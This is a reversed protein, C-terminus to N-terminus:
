AREFLKQLGQPGELALVDDRTAEDTLDLAKMKDALKAMLKVSGGVEAAHEKAYAALGKAKALSDGYALAHPELLEQDRPDSCSDEPQCADRPNLRADEYPLKM